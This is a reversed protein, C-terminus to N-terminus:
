ATDAPDQVAVRLAEVLELHRLHDELVPQWGPRLVQHNAIRFFSVPDLELLLKQALMQDHLPVWTSTVVCYCALPEAGRPDAPDLRFVNHAHRSTIRFPGEPTPVTFAGEQEFEAAQGPSLCSLLLDRARLSAAERQAAAALRRPEDAAWAASADERRQMQRLLAVRVAPHVAALDRGETGRLWELVLSAAEDDGQVPETEDVADNGELLAFGSVVFRQGEVAFPERTPFVLTASRWGLSLAADVLNRLHDVVAEAEQDPDDVRGGLHLFTPVVLRSSRLHFDAHAFGGQASRVVHTRDYEPRTAPALDYLALQGDMLRDLRVSVIM